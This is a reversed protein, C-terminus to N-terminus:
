ALTFLPSEVVEYKEGLYARTRAQAHREMWRHGTDKLDYVEFESKTDTKRMGRGIRQLAAIISKGGSGIVVSRLEPIDVGEQFIVTSILVETDAHVLRKVATGRSYTSDQGWVFETTLGARTCLEQIQKGHRIEKVFILCPKTATKAAEVIIRNRKISRVVCERYVGQWSEEDTDQECPIMRIKPKSLIGADILAQSSIRYIVPGLAAIAYQSRKDDRDLPTASIGVRFYAQNMSMAVKWFTYAPLTHCEEAILGERSELLGITRPSKIQAYLTQFTACVFTDSPKADWTGEGIRAARLGTRTEYRAAEQEMLGARHAVFLWRCPLLRTLGVAIDGKGSGTPARVIGRGKAAVARCADLQYDRLWALDANPDPECPKKRKDLLEVKIGEASSAKRISPIFGSAFTNTFRSLMCVKGDGRYGHIFRARADEFTLYSSLWALERDTASIVKSHVNAVEILM